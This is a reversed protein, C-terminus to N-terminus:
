RTRQELELAWRAVIEEGPAYELYARYHELACELDHLYLECLIGLNKRAPLYDPHRVLANQYASRAANFRGTKRYLLGLENNAVAHGADLRLARSFNHEALKTQGTRSYAIGLNVFPAALRQEKDTLTELLAIGEDFEEQELHTLAQTFMRQINEDVVVNQAPTYTDKRVAEQSCASALLMVAATLVPIVRAYQRAAGTPRRTPATGNQPGSSSM